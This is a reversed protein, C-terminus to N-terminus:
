KYDKYTLAQRYGWAIARDSFHIGMKGAYTIGRQWCEVEFAMTNWKIVKGWKHPLIKHGIEHFFSICRLEKDKYLGLWIEDGCISSRNIFDEAPQHMKVIHIPEKSMDLIKIKFDECVKSIAKEYKEAQVAKKWNYSSM